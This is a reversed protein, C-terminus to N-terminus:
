LYKDFNDYLSDIEGTLVIGSLSPYQQANSTTKLHLVYVGSSIVPTSDNINVLMPDTMLWYKDKEASHKRWNTDRITYMQEVGERALNVAMVQIKTSQVYAYAKNVAVIVGVMVFEFLSLAIIVELLTFAKKLGQM